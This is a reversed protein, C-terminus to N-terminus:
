DLALNFEKFIKLHLLEILKPKGDCAILGFQEFFVEFFEFMLQDIERIFVFM